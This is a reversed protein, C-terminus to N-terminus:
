GWFFKFLEDLEDFPSTRKFDCRASKATQPQERVVNIFENLADTAKQKAEVYRKEWNKEAEEKRARKIEYDGEEEVLEEKSDYFKDLLESYFKM